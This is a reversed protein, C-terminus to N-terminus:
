CCTLAYALMDHPNDRAPDLSVVGKAPRWENDNYTSNFYTSRNNNGKFYRKLFLYTKDKYLSVELTVLHTDKEVLTFRYSDDSAEFAKYANPLEDILDFM